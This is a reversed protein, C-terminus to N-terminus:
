FEWSWENQAKGTVCAIKTRAAGSVAKRMHPTVPQRQLSMTLYSIYFRCLTLCLVFSKGACLHLNRSHFTANEPPYCNLKLSADPSKKLEFFILLYIQLKLNTVHSM